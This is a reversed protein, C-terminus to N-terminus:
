YFNICYETGVKKIITEVSGKLKQFNTYADFGLWQYKIFRWLIEIKNLEPSYPPIFYIFLDKEEWKAKNIMFLKSKHIPANDLVVITKKVITNAFKDLLDVVTQSNLNGEYTQAFLKCNTTMLGFVSFSKGKKAPLLIPQDKQQWAYPVNPTLGFHSADGFYLDIYNAKHM